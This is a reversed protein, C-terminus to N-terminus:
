PTVGACDLCEGYRRPIYYEKTQECTGCTMRATLAKFIADWQAVTAERKPTAHREDYLYAVRVTNRHRWMIQAVFPHRGPCLGKARLQRRTLLHEPAWRWPYTPITYISGTPDYFEIYIGLSRCKQYYREHKARSRGVTRTRTATVM